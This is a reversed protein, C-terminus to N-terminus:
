HFEDLRKNLIEEKADKRDNADGYSYNLLNSRKINLYQHDQNVEERLRGILSQPDVTHDGYGLLGEPYSTFKSNLKTQDKEFRKM